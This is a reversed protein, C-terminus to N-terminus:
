YESAGRRLAGEWTIMELNLSVMRNVPNGVGDVIVVGNNGQGVVCHVRELEETAVGNEDTALLSLVGNKDDKAIVLEVIAAATQVTDHAVVQADLVAVDDGDVWAGVDFVDTRGGGDDQM